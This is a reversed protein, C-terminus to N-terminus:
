GTPVQGAAQRHQRPTSGTWRKFARYFVSLDSFGLLEAIDEYSRESHEVYHLAMSERLEDLLAKFSSDHGELRRRLTRPSMHLSHALRDLSVQGQELQQAIAQRAQQIFPPDSPLARLLHEAHQELVQGLQPDAGPPRADLAAVPFIIENQEQDCRVACGFHERYAAEPIRAGHRFRVEIVEHQPLEHRLSLVATLFSRELDAHPFPHEGDRWLRFHARGELETLSLRAHDDLLHVFREARLVCERVSGSHRLLYEFVGSAGPQLLAAVRLGIAPDGSLEVAAEWFAASAGAVLRGSEQELQSRRIGARRLMTEVDHGAQALVEVVPALQLVSVTGPIASRPPM